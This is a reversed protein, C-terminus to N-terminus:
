PVVRRSGLYGKRQRQIFELVASREFRIYRGLRIHPLRGRHTPSTRDYVWSPNVKLLAAVDEVTLLEDAAQIETADTMAFFLNESIRHTKRHIERTNERTK